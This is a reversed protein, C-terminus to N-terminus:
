GGLSNGIFAVLGSAVFVIALGILSNYVRKRASAAKEPNGSSTIYAVGAIIISIIAVLGAVRLLMDIIALVVLWIDSFGFGSISCNLSPNPKESAPLYEWWNPFFFFSKGCAVAFAPATLKAIFLGFM